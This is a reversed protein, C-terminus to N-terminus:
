GLAVVLDCFCLPFLFTPLGCFLDDKLIIFLRVTRHQHILFVQLDAQALKGQLKILSSLFGSSPFIFPKCGAFAHTGCHSVVALASSIACDLIQVLQFIILFRVFISRV